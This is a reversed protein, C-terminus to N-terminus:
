TRIGVQPDSTPIVTIYTNLIVRRWDKQTSEEQNGLWLGPLFTGGGSLSCHGM